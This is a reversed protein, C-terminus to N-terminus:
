TGSSRRRPCTSPARSRRTRSAGTLEQLMQMERESLKKELPHSSAPAPDATMFDAPEYPEGTAMFRVANV